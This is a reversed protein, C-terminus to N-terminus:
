FTSVSKLGRLFPEFVRQFGEKFHQPFLILKHESDVLQSIRRKCATYNQMHSGGRSKLSYPSCVCM